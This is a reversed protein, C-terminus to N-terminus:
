QFITITGDGKSGDIREFVLLRHQNKVLLRVNLRELLNKHPLKLKRHIGVKLSCYYHYITLPSHYIIQDSNNLMKRDNFPTRM